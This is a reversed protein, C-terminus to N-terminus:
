RPFATMGVLRAVAGAEGQVRVIRETMTDVDVQRQKNFDRALQTARLTFETRQRQESEDILTKVQELLAQNASAPVPSTALAPTRKFAAFEGRLQDLQRALETNAAATNAASTVGSTSASSPDVGGANAGDRASSPQVLAQSRADPAEVVAAMDGRGAGVALGAGFIAIAAAAQAWAPLPRSWWRAPRLVLAPGQADAAGAAPRTIQFGLEVDPPAWGALHKRTATLAAVEDACPVCAGLHAAVRAREGPGCEDYLYSVLEEPDIHTMENM